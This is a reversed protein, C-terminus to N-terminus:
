ICLLRRHPAMSMPDLALPHFCRSISLTGITTSRRDIEADGIFFLCSFGIGEGRERQRPSFFAAFFYFAHRLFADLIEETISDAGGASSQAEHGRWPPRFLSSLRREFKFSCPTWSNTPRRRCFNGGKQESAPLSRKTMSVILVRGGGSGELRSRHLSVM